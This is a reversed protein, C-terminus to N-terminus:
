LRVFHKFATFPKSRRKPSLSVETPPGNVELCLGTGDDRMSPRDM